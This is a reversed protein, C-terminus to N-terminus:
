QSFLFNCISEGSVDIERSHAQGGGLTVRARYRGSFLVAEYVGLSNSMVCDVPRPKGMSEFCVQAGAAMGGRDVVIGITPSIGDPYDGGKRIERLGLPLMMSAHRVEKAVSLMLPFVVSTAFGPASARLVYIGTALNPFVFLGESDSATEFSRSTGIETLRVSCRPISNDPRISHQAWIRGRIEAPLAAQTFVLLLPIISAWLSASLNIQIM